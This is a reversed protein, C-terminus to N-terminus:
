RWEYQVRAEDLVAAAAELNDVPLRAPTGDRVKDMFQKAEKLGWGTIARVAKISQIFGSRVYEDRWDEGPALIWITPAEGRIRLVINDITAIHVELEDRIALLANLDNKWIEM